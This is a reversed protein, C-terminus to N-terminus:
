LEKHWNVGTATYGHTELLRGVVSAKLRSGIASVAAGKKKLHPEAFRALLDMLKMRRFSSLSPDTHWVIEQAVAIQRQYLTSRLILSYFVGEIRPGQAAIVLVSDPGNCPAFTDYIHEDEYLGKLPGFAIEDYYARCTRVIEPIDAETALRVM